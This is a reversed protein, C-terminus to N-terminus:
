KRTPIESTKRIKRSYKQANCLCAFDNRLVINKGHQSLANEVKGTKAFFTFSRRFALISTKELSFSPNPPGLVSMECFNPPWSVKECKKAFTRFYRYVNDNKSTLFDSFTSFTCNETFHRFLAFIAFIPGFFLAMLCKFYLHTEFRRDGLRGFHRFHRFLASKRLFAGFTGRQPGRIGTPWPGLWRIGTPWPGLWRIGTSWPGLWRIGTSWPDAGWGVERIAILTLVPPPPPNQPGGERPSEGWYYFLM